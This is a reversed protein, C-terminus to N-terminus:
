LAVEEEHILSKIKTLMEDDFETINHVKRSHKMVQALLDDENKSRAVFDCDYGGDRCRIVKEVAM